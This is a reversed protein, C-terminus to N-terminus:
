FGCRRLVVCLSVHYTDNLPYYWMLRNHTALLLRRADSPAPLGTRQTTTETTAVGTLPVAAAAAPAAKQQQQVQQQQQQAHRQEMKLLLSPQEKEAAPATAAESAVVAAAGRHQRLPLMELRAFGAVAAAVVLVTLLALPWRKRAARLLWGAGPRRPTDPGGGDLAGRPGGGNGNAGGGNGKGAAAAPGRRLIKGSLDATFHGGGAHQGNANVSLPIGNPHRDHGHNNQGAGDGSGLGSSRM